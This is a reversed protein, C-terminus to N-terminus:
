VSRGGVLSPFGSEVNKGWEWKQLDARPNCINFTGGGKGVEYDGTYINGSPFVYTGKGQKKEELFEGQLYLISGTM